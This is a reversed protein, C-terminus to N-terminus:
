FEEYSYPASGIISVQGLDMYLVSIAEYLWSNAPILRQENILNEAHLNFILFFLISFLLFKKKM